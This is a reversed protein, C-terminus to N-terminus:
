AEPRRCVDRNLKDAKGEWIFDSIAKEANTIVYEPVHLVNFAYLLTGFGVSKVIYSKGYLTLFRKKWLALINQLKDNKKDM